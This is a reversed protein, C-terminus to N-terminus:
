GEKATDPEDNYQVRGNRFVPHTRLPHAIEDYLSFSGHPIDPDVPHNICIQGSSFEVGEYSRGNQAHLHFTRIM